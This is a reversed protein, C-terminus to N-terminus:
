PAPDVLPSPLALILAASTDWGQSDPDWKGNSEHRFKIQSTGAGRYEYVTLICTDNVKASAKAEYSAIIRGSADHILYTKLYGKLNTLLNSTTNETNESGM